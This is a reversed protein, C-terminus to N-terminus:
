PKPDTATLWRDAEEAQTFCNVNKFGLARTTGILMELLIKQVTNGPLVVAAHIGFGVKRIVQPLFVSAFWARSIAEDHVQKSLDFMVRRYGTAIIGELLRECTTKYDAHVIRDTLQIRFLKTEDDRFLFVSRSSSVFIEEM